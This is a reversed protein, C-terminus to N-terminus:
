QTCNPQPCSESGTVYLAIATGGVAAIPIVVGLV